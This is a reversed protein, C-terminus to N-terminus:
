AHGGRDALWRTRAQEILERERRDADTRSGVPRLRPREARLLDPVSPDFAWWAWPRSTDDHDAAWNRLVVRGYREWAERLQAGTLPSRPDPGLELAMQM